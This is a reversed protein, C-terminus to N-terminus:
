IRVSQVIRLFQPPRVERQGRSRVSYRTSVLHRITDSFSGQPEHSGPRVPFTFSSKILLYYTHLNNKEFNTFKTFKIPKLRVRNKVKKYINIIRDAERQIGCM